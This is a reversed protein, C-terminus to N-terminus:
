DVFPLLIKWCILILPEEWRLSWRRRVDCRIWASLWVFKTSVIGMRNSSCRIRSSTRMPLLVAVKRNSVPQELVISKSACSDPMTGSPHPSANSELPLRSFTENQLIGSICIPFVTILLALAAMAGLSLNAAMSLRTALTFPPIPASKIAPPLAMLISTFALCIMSVSLGFINAPSFLCVVVKLSAHWSHRGRCLVTQRCRLLWYWKRYPRWSIEGLVRIYVVSFLRGYTECDIPLCLNNAFFIIRDLM